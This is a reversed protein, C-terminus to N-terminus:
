DILNKQHDLISWKMKKLKNKNLEELDIRLDILKMELSKIEKLSNKTLKDLWRIERALNILLQKLNPLERLMLKLNNVEKITMLLLTLLSILVKYNIKLVKDLLKLRPKNWKVSKNRIIKWKNNLMDINKLM